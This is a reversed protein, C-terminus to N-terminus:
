KINLFLKYVYIERNAIWFVIFIPWCIEYIKHSKRFVIKRSDIDELLIDNKMSWKMNKEWMRVALGIQSIIRYAINAIM